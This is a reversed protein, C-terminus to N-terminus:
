EQTERVLAKFEGLLGVPICIGRSHKRDTRHTHREQPGDIHLGFSTMSYQAHHCCFLPHLHSPVMVTLGSQRVTIVASEWVVYALLCLKVKNKFMFSPWLAKICNVQCFVRQAYLMNILGTKTRDLLFVLWDLTIIFCARLQNKHTYEQSPHQKRSHQQLYLDRFICSANLVQLTTKIWTQCSVQVFRFWNIAFILLWTVSRTCLERNLGMWTYFWILICFPIQIGRM